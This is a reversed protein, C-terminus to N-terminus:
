AENEVTNLEESEIRHLVGRLQTNLSEDQVRLSWFAELQKVRHYSKFEDICDQVVNIFAGRKNFGKIVFDRLIDASELYLDIRKEVLTRNRNKM